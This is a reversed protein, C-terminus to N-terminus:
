WYFRPHIVHRAMTQSTPGRKSLYLLWYANEKTRYISHRKREHAVWSIRDSQLKTRRYRRELMRSHRRLVHCEHDMWAAIPQRRMTMHRITAFKDALLQLTQHYIDFCEGSTDSCASPNCLNSSLLASRFEDRSVKGLM